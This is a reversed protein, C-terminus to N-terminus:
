LGFKGKEANYNSLIASDSLARNYIYTSYINGDLFGTQAPTPSSTSNTRGGILPTTQLLSATFTTTDTTDLAGNVYFKYTNSSRTIAVNYFNGVIPVLTSYVVYSSYGPGSLLRLNLKYQNAGATGEFEIIFRGNGTAGIYQCYLVGGAVLTDLKFWCAYTWDSTAPIIPTPLTAYDNVGDFVLGGGNASDYGVGNLLTADYNNGSLDYWTAGTGPYSASDGANLYLASDSVIQNIGFRVKQADYNYVVEDASLVRNYVLTNAVNGNLYIGPVGENNQAGIWQPFEFTGFANSSFNNTIISVTKEFGDIYFTNTGTSADVCWVLNHWTNDNINLGSVYAIINDASGSGKRAFLFVSGVEPITAGRNVEIALANTNGIGGSYSGFLNGRSSSSTKFWISISFDTYGDFVFQSNIYDNVGDFAFYGGDASNYGVGNVLTGDIENGSLDYLINGTARYSTQFKPDFWYQLGNRIISLNPDIPQIMM